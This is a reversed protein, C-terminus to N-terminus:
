KEILIFYILTICSFNQFLSLAKYTQSLVLTQGGLAAGGIITCLARACVALYVYIFISIFM